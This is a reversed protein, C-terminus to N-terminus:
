SRALHFPSVEPEDWSGGMCAAPLVACLRCSEQAGWMGRPPHTAMRPCPETHACAPASSVWGVAGRAGDRGKEVEGGKSRHGRTTTTDGPLSPCPLYVCVGM